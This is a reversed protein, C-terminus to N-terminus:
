QDVHRFGPSHERVRGCSQPWATDYHPIDGGYHLYFGEYILQAGVWTESQDLHHFVQQAEPVDFVERDARLVAHDGVGAEDDHSPPYM